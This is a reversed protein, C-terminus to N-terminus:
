TIRNIKKAIFYIIEATLGWLTGYKTKYVFVRHKKGGWSRGYRPPLDLEHVPFTLNEVGNKDIEFPSVNLRVHYKEPENELFYSFPLTFIKEVERKDFNTIREFDIVLSGLIPDIMVGIPSILKHYRGIVSIQDKSIGLEEVTERVATAVPDNLDSKDFAGGPFCIEGSQRIGDARKEFLVHTEGAVEIFPVLVASQFYEEQNILYPIENTLTILQDLYKM